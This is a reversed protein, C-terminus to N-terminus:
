AGQALLPMAAAPEATIQALRRQDRQVLLHDNLRARLYDLVSDTDTTHQGTSLCYYVWKGQRRDTVLGAQKLISMHRSIRSQGMELVWMIHCVCLEGHELLKLIRLRTEDNHV